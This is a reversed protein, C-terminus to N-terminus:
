RFRSYSCKAQVGSGTPRQVGAAHSRFDPYKGHEGVPVAGDVALKSGGLTLAEAVTACGRVQPHRKLRERSWDTEDVQNMYLSVLDM